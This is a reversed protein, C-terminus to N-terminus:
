ALVAALAVLAAALMVAATGRGRGLALRVCAYAAVVTLFTAGAPEGAGRVALAAPILALATGAEVLQAPVRGVHGGCCGNLLCGVKTPVMAVLMTFVAADWFAWFGLGFLPLVAASCALAAALGGYLTAGGGARDWIRRPEARFAAANQVAFLLRAGVLAPVLLVLTAAAFVNPDLGDAEAVTGGVALGAVIGTYLLAPYTYIRLRPLEILVPRM